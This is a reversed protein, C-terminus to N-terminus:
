RISGEEVWRDVLDDFAGDGRLNTQWLEAFAQPSLCRVYEYRAHAIKLIENEALLRENERALVNIEYTKQRDSKLCSIYDKELKEIEDSTMSM